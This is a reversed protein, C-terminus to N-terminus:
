RFIVHVLNGGLAVWCKGLDPATTLFVYAAVLLIYICYAGTRPRSGDLFIM